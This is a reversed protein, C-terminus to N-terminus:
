PQSLLLFSIAISEIYSIDLISCHKLNSKSFDFNIKIASLKNLAVALSFLLTSMKIKARITEFTLM